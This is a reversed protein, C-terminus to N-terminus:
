MGALLAVFSSGITVSRWSYCRFGCTILLHRFRHATYWIRYKMHCTAYRKASMPRQRSCGLVPQFASPCQAFHFQRFRKMGSGAQATQADRPSEVARPATVAASDGTLDY